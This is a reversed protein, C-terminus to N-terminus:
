KKENLMMGILMAEGLEKTSMIPGGLLDIEKKIEEIITDPYGASRLRYYLLEPDIRTATCMVRIGAAASMVRLRREIVSLDRKLRAAAACEQALTRVVEHDRCARGDGGGLAELSLTSRKSVTKGCLACVVQPIPM